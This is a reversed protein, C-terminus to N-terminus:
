TDAEASKLWEAITGAIRDAANALHNADLHAYIETTQPRRHGLLKGTMSLTEGKMIARSAYTHRLDHLRISESLGIRRRINRWPIHLEGIPKDPDNKSPFVYSSKAGTRRRELIVKAPDTLVVERNGTKAAQLKLHDKDVHSWKLGAIEGSRCGTLLILHIADAIDLWRLQPAELWAGLKALEKSNLLRGRARRTNKRIPSSPDPADKPLRGTDRAFKLCTRFLTLAQNAGGARAASYTHFWTAIEATTLHNIPRHGFAPILQSRLYTKFSKVTSPKWIGDKAKLFEAALERFTMAPADEPAIHVIVTDSHEVRLQHARIRAEEAGMSEASGITLRRLKGGVRLRLVWSKAGSPQVRLAFGQFATDRISYEKPKPRSKAAVTDTLHKKYASM